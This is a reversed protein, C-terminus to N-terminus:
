RATARWRERFRAEVQPNVWGLPWQGAMLRAVEEAPRRAQEAWVQDSYHASHGTFIVNDLALLPNDMKAPETELVDLGAGAIHRETLARYLAQEDVLAGRAANILYASPKM